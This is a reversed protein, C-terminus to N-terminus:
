APWSVDIVHVAIRSQLEPSMTAVIRKQLEEASQPKRGGDGGSMTLKKDGTWLVIYVGHGYAAPAITYKLILQNKVAKWIDRHWDGKIEIPLEFKGKYSLRLDSRKSNRCTAEPQCDIDYRFLRNKLNGLIVDRCDEENKHTRPEKKDTNWFTKYGNDNDHRIVNAIDDLTDSALALLDAANAPAKHNIVGSVEEATLFTFKEERRRNLLENRASELWNRTDRTSELSLLRAVEDIADSTNGLELQRIFRRIKDGRLQTKTVTSDESEYSMNASPALAEILKGLTSVPITQDIAMKGFDHSFFDALADIKRTIDGTEIYKWISGEYKAGDIMLAAAYWYIKQVVSMSKKGLKKDVIQALELPSYHLGIRLIRKLQHLLDTNARLPFMELLRPVINKAIRSYESKNELEHLGNLYSKKSKLLLKFHLLFVESLLSPKKAALMSMWEHVGQGYETLYFAVVSRLTEPRLDVISAPNKQHLGSIGILCPSHLHYRQNDIHLKFIEEATPIDNRQLCRVFGKEAASLIAASNNFFSDFRQEHSDGYVNGYVNRYQNERIDALLYMTDPRATGLAIEKLESEIDTTHKAKQKKEEKRELAVQNHWDPYPCVLLSNFWQMEEPRTDSWEIVMDLNLGIALEPQNALFSLANEVHKRVQEDNKSCKAQEFHWLGIDPPPPIDGLKWIIENNDSNELTDTDQYGKKLLAKYREPHAKFWDILESEGNNEHRFNIRDHALWDLLQRDEIEDGFRVMCRYLLRVFCRTLKDHRHDKSNFLPHKLFEDLLDRLYEDPTSEAIDSYWFGFYVGLLNSQKRSHLHKLLTVPKITSPYLDSLLLGLLEDDEDPVLNESIHDLLRIKKGSDTETKLWLRLATTRVGPWYSQDTVLRYIDDALHRFPESNGLIDLVCYIHLQHAKSRQPSRFIAKFDEELEPSALRGFAHGHYLSDRFGYSREAENGLQKLIRRKDGPPMLKPDGYLIIALVDAGILQDRATQCHLALWGCLGRLGAVVGKDIGLLLNLLRKIPLRHQDIQRALWKSALYEAISRHSPVIREEGHPKFLRSTIAQQAVDPDPPDCTAVSIFYDNEKDSDLALGMQDSLLLVSCIQGAADLLQDPPTSQIHSRVADRHRRNSEVVMKKCALQYAEDRSDPWQGGTIAEALLELTQPNKLLENIGLNQAQAIFGDPDSVDFNDRLISRINDDTLPQLELVSIRNSPSATQLIERDSSGYWDAARCSLRFRPHDLKKLRNSVERIIPVHSDKSSARVEDLGDLFLTKDKLDAPLDGSVFEAITLFQSECHEAEAELSTSKGAGPEGLLIWADADRFDELLLEPTEQRNSDDNDKAVRITRLAIHNATNNSM